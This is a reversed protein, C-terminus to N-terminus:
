PENITFVNASRSRTTEPIPGQGNMICISTNRGWGVEKDRTIQKESGMVQVGSLQFKKKHGYLTQIVVLGSYLM